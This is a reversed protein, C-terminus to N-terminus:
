ECFEQADEYTDFPGDVLDYGSAEPTAEEPSDSGFPEWYDREEVYGAYYKTKYSM